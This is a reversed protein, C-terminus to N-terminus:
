KNGVVRVVTVYSATVEHEQNRSLPSHRVEQREVHIIYPWMQFIGASISVYVIPGPCSVSCHPTLSVYSDFWTQEWSTM